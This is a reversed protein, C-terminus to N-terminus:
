LGEVHLPASHHSKLRMWFRAEEIAEWLPYPSPRGKLCDGMDLMITVIAFEDQM